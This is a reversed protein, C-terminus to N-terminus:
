IIGKKKARDYADQIAARESQVARREKAIASREDVLWEKEKLIEAERRRFDQEKAEMQVATGESAKRYDLWKDSLAQTSKRNLRESEEVREMRRVAEEELRKAESFRDSVEALKDLLASREEDLRASLEDLEKVRQSLSEERLACDKERGVIPELAKKKQRELAEVEHKLSYSLTAYEAELKATRDNLEKETLKLEEWAQNRESTLRAIDSSLANREEVLKARFEVSASAAQPKSLLRLM